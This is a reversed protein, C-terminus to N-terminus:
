TRLFYSDPTTLTHRHPIRPSAASLAAFAAAIAVDVFPICLAANIRTDDFPCLVKGLGCLPQLVPMELHLRADYVGAKGGVKQDLLGVGPPRFAPLHHLLPRVACKQKEGLADAPEHVTDGLIPAIAILIDHYATRDLILFVCIIFEANELAERDPVLADRGLRKDPGNVYLAIKVANLEHNDATFRVPVRPRKIVCPHQIDPLLAHSLVYGKFEPLATRMENFVALRIGQLCLVQARLRPFGTDIEFGADSCSRM